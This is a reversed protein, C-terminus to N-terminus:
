ASPAKPDENIAKESEEGATDTYTEWRSYMAERLGEIDQDPDFEGINQHSEITEDVLQNWLDKNQVGQRRALDCLEDFLQGQALPELNM